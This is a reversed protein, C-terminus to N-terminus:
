WSSRPRTSPPPHRLPDAPLAIRAPHHGLALVGVADHNRAALRLEDHSIGEEPSAVRAPTSISELDITM